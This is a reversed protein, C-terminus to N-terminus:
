RTGAVPLLDRKVARWLAWTFLLALLALAGALPKVTWYDAPAEGAVLIQADDPLPRPAWVAAVDVATWPLAPGDGIALTADTAQLAKWTAKRRTMVPEVRSAWLQAAELRKETAAPASADATRIIWSARADTTTAPAVATALVGASVLAATWTKVDRLRETFTVTVRAAAPDAVELEVETDGSIKLQLGGLTNVTGGEASAQRARRLETGAIFQAQPVAVYDRLAPGMPGADIAYLRGVYRKDHTPRAWAGGAIAVWVRDASGIVPVLRSGPDGAGDRIRIASAREVDAVVAIEENSSVRDAVIDDVTVVRAEGAMSFRLDGYLRGLYVLCVAVIVFATIAGVQARPGRLSILEPDIADKGVPAGPDAVGQTPAGASSRPAAMAVTTPM